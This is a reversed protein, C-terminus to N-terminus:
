AEEPHRRRYHEEEREVDERKERLFDEVSGPVHAMSGCAADIRARREEETIAPAAPLPEPPLRLGRLIREAVLLDSESLEEVLSHVREKVSM